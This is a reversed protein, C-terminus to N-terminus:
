GSRNLYDWIEDFERAKEKARPPSNLYVSANIKDSPTDPTIPDHLEELRLMYDDCIIFHKIPKPSTATVFQATGGFKKHLNVVIEPADSEGVFIARLFGESKKIREVAGIFSNKLVDLCYVGAGMGNLMRISKSTDQFMLDALYLAHSYDSNPIEVDHAEENRVIDVLDRYDKGISKVGETKYNDIVERITMIKMRKTDVM